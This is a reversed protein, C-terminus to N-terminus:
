VSDQSWGKTAGQIAAAIAGLRKNGRARIIRCEAFSPNLARRETRAAFDAFSADDLDFMRGFVFLHSPNFINIVAAAGVALYDLVRNLQARVDVQGAQVAASLEDITWERGTAQNVANLLATDTAETELCGQNGCGCQWGDLKVTIHGIEGALGGAGRLLRGAHIVGMGLGASIDLLAFDSARGAEGFMQEALCLAHCEQLVLTDVQLRERLDVALNHGDLQHLNPSVISTGQRRDILGPVSLGVGLVTTGRATMLARAQQVCQHLLEHYDAPTEFRRIDREDITGDLGAAVLECSQADIVCGIVCVNKSALRVLKGPRGVSAQKPYQEELLRAALLTGVVRTVTPGSIGTRRSIDARSLPGHEQLTALVQRQNLERLLSPVAKSSPARPM